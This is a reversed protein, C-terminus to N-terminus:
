RGSRGHPRSIEDDGKTGPTVFAAEATAVVFTGPITVALSVPAMMTVMSMMSIMSSGPALRGNPNDALPGEAMGTLVPM